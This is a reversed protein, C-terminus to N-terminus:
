IFERKFIYIFKKFILIINELIIGKPNHCESINRQPNHDARTKGMGSCGIHLEQARLLLWGREQAGTSLLSSLHLSVLLLVAALEIVLLFPFM